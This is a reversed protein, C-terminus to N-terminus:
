GRIWASTPAAPISTCGFSFSWNDFLDHRPDAATPVDRALSVSDPYQSISKACNILEPGVPKPATEWFDWYTRMLGGDPIDVIASTVGVSIALQISVSRRNDYICPPAEM